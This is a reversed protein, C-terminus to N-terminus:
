QKQQESDSNDEEAENLQAATEQLTETAKAPLASGEIEVYTDEEVDYRYIASQNTAVFINAKFYM